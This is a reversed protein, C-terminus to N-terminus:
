HNNPQTGDAKAKGISDKVDLSDSKIGMSDRATTNDNTVPKVDAAHNGCSALWFLLASVFLYKM